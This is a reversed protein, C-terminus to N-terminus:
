LNAVALQNSEEQFVIDCFVYTKIKVTFESFFNIGPGPPGREGPLGVAGEPGRPGPVGPLGPIRPCSDLDAPPGLEGAIPIM